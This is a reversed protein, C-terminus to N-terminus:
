NQAQLRAIAAERREQLFKQIGEDTKLLGESSLIRVKSKIMAESTVDKQYGGGSVQVIPIGNSLSWRWVMEDRQLLAEESINLQGTQDGKMPDFAGVYVLIDPNVGKHDRLAQGLAQALKELYDADTTKSNVPIAVGCGARVKEDITEERVGTQPRQNENKIYKGKEDGCSAVPYNYEHFADVIYVAPNDRFSRGHGNGQHADLDIIMAKNIKSQAFLDRLAIQIDAIACFGEHQGGSVGCIKGEENVAGAAHHFGGETYAYGFDLAAHAADITGGTQWLMPELVAGSVKKDILRSFPWCGVLSSIWGMGWPLSDDLADKLVERISVETFDETAAATQLSRLEEKTHVRLLAEESPYSPIGYCGEKLVGKEKLADFVRQSRKLDFPHLEGVFDQLRPPLNGGYM